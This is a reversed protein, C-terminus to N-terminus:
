PVLTLAFVFFSRLIKKGGITCASVKKDVGFVSGKKKRKKERKWVDQTTTDFDEQFQNERVPRIGSVIKEEFAVQCSCVSFAM